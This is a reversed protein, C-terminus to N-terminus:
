WSSGDGGGVTAAARQLPARELPARLAWAVALASAALWGLLAAATLADPALLPQGRLAQWLSLAVVGAYSGAAAQVLRARQQQSRRTRRLGLAVLPLVQLAHLGLFHAVRLDGHERSWGTGPLGPGGDPAGVTHAGISTVQGSRLEALQAQTPRTMAGALSAGAITVVMALRLAWGLAEDALKTRWLAVAVAVSVVTQLVIATGMVLYLARDLPTSANFHSPVGRAAQTCIIVLELLLVAASTRGVIRRVRQHQPLLSLIWSLTLGYLAVSAAFKAPKLWVPAGTVVRPDLWLGLLCAALLPLMALSAATLPASAAWLQSLWARIRSSFM